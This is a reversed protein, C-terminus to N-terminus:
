KLDDELREINMILLIAKKRIHDRPEGALFKKHIDSIVEKFRKNLTKLKDTSEKNM